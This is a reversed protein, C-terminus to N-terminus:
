PGTVRKMAKFYMGDSVHRMSKSGCRSDSRFISRSSAQRGAPSSRKRRRSPRSSRRCKSRKLVRALEYDIELALPSQPYDVFGEGAWLRIDYVHLGFFTMRGSGRLRAGPLNSAVEPPVNTQSRLAFPAAALALLAARRNLGFTGFVPVDVTL